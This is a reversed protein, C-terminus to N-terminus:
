ISIRYKKDLGDYGVLSDKMKTWLLDDPLSRPDDPRHLVWQRQLNPEDDVNKWNLQLITSDDNLVQEVGSVALANTDIAAIWPIGQETPSTIM